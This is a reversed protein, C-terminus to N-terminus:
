DSQTKIIPCLSRVKEPATHFYIATMLMMYWSLFVVGMGFGVILGIGKGDSQHDAGIVSEKAETYAGKIQGDKGVIARKDKMGRGKLVSPLIELSLFASGLVLLFVHGSIDHGGVWRGGSLKCAAATALTGLDINGAGMNDIENMKVACKGGTLAFGRDILGPGAAWQTVLIWWTTVAGWRLAARVRRPTLRFAAIINGGMSSHLAWFVFFAATMWFWGIKVFFVNFVNRKLAFYSPADSPHHSQREVSYPALRAPLSIMSFLSGLTLLFPYLFLLLIEPTTPLYPSALNKTSGSFSISPARDDANPDNVTDVSTISATDTDQRSLKVHGNRRIPDSSSAMTYSIRYYVSAVAKSVESRYSFCIFHANLSASYTLLPWADLNCNKHRSRRCYPLSVEGVDSEVFRM